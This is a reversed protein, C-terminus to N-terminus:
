EGVGGNPRGAGFSVHGSTWSCHTSGLQGLAMGVCIPTSSRNQIFTRRQPRLFAFTYPPFPQGPWPIKPTGQVRTRPQSARALEPENEIGTIRMRYVSGIMVAIRAQVPLEPAFQGADAMNVRMGKPGRIEVAQWLGRLEPKRSLQIAGIEGPPLHDKILSHNNNPLPKYLSQAQVNGSFCFAVVCLAIMAIWAMFLTPFSIRKLM